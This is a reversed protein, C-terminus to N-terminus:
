LRNKMENIKKLVFLRLNRRFIRFAIHEHAEPFTAISPTVIVNPLDRLCSLPTNSDLLIGRFKKTRAVEALAAADVSEVAGVAVLISDQKMLDFEGKTFLPEACWRKSLALSVVDAAPLLSHLHALAFNKQCDPHFTKQKQIGWTKMNFHNALKVISTGVEGLGVQLLIKDQLTWLRQKLETEWLDSTAYLANFFQKAFALIAGIVFEAMQAVNQGKSATILINSRRHIAEVCLGETDNSTCHIWRLRDALELEEETLSHGYVVEVSSWDSPTECTKLFTYHPFEQELSSKEETELNSQLFISPM